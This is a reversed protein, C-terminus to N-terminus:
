KLDFYQKVSSLVARSTQQGHITEATLGFVAQLWGNVPSDFNLELYGNHGLYLSHAPPGVSDWPPLYATQKIRHVHHKLDVDNVFIKKLEFYKDPMQDTIYNKGYHEIQLCNNPKLDLCFSQEWETGDASFRQLIDGNIRIMIM